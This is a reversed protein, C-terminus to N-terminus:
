DRVLSSVPESAVEEETWKMQAARDDLGHPEELQDLSAFREEYYRNLLIAMVCDDTSNNGTRFSDPLGLQLGLYLALFAVSTAEPFGLLTVIPGAFLLLEGPIGPVAFGILFVLPICLLLDVMTVPIGLIQVVAGLLVIVCIMTGNISLYSGVGIVFRRVDTRIQPFYKKVLYLNLPTALAESSTAWLFPYVNVWYNSFYHRISFSPNKRKVIGLLVGQWMICAVGILLSIVVYCTVIGLPTNSPIEWGLVWLPKLVTGEAGSGIQAKLNEPLAYIYAAVAFIFLPVVPVFAQGVVEVAVACQNLVGSIKPSKKAVIVTLVALYMAYFYTSHTMMWGMSSLTKTASEWLSSSGTSFLPLGFVVVTFVVAWVLSILRRVTLWYIAFGAFAGGRGTRAGVMRALAPALIAYIAVPAIFGYFDVFWNIGGSIADSVAPWVSALVIGGVFAGVTLVTLYKEICESFRMYGSVIAGWWGTTAQSSDEAM